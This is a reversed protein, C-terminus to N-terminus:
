TPRVKTQMTSGRPARPASDRGAGRTPTTSRRPGGPGHGHLGRALDRRHGAALRQDPQDHRGEADFLAEFWLVSQETTTSRTRCRVHAAVPGDVPENAVFGTIVGQDSSRSRASTRPSATRAVRAADDDYSRRRCRSRSASTRRSSTPQRWRRGRGRPVAHLRHQRHRDPEARPRQLEGLIWSGMYFM